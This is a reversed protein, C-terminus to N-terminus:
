QLDASTQLCRAVFTPGGGRAGRHGGLGIGSFPGGWGVGSGVGGEAERIQAALPKGDGTEARKPIDPYRWAPPSRSQELVPLVYGVCVSHKSSVASCAQHPNHARPM